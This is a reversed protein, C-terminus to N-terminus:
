PEPLDEVFGSETIYQLLRMLPGRLSLNQVSVRDSDDTTIVLNPDVNVSNLHQRIDALSMPQIFAKVGTSFLKGTAQLLDDDSDVYFKDSLLMAFTSIGMLFRLPQQSYRRIYRSLKYSQRLRTVMTWEHQDVLERVHDLIDATEGRSGAHVSNISFETVNLPSKASEDLEESLKLGAAAFGVTDVTSSYRM